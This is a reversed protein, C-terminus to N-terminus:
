SMTVFAQAPLKEHRLHKWSTSATLLIIFIMKPQKKRSIGTEGPRATPSYAQFSCEKFQNLSQSPTARKEQPTPCETVFSIGNSSGTFKGSVILYM